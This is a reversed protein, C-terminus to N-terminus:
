SLLVLKEFLSRDVKFLGNKPGFFPSGRV